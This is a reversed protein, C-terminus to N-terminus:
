ALSMLRKGIFRNAEPTYSWQYLSEQITTKRHTKIFTQSCSRKNQLSYNGIAFNNINIVNSLRSLVHEFVSFGPENFWNMKAFNVPYRRRQPRKKIYNCTKISVKFFVLCKHVTAKSFWTRKSETKCYGSATTRLHETFFTNKSIESFNM